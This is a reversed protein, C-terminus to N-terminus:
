TTRDDVVSITKDYFRCGSMETLASAYADLSLYVVSSTDGVAVRVEKTKHRNSDETAGANSRCSYMYMLHEVNLWAYDIRHRVGATGFQDGQHTSCHVGAGALGDLDQWM